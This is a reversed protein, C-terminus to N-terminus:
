TWIIVFMHTVYWCTVGTVSHTWVAVSSAAVPPGAHRSAFDDCVWTVCFHMNLWESSYRFGGSCVAARFELWRVGHVRM